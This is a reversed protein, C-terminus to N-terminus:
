NGHEALRAFCRSVTARCRRRLLSDQGAGNENQGEGAGGSAGCGLVEAMAGVFDEEAFERRARAGLRYVTKEEELYGGKTMEALFPRAQTEAIGFEALADLLYLERAHNEYVVILCLVLMSMGRQAGRVRVLGALLENSGAELVSVVVYENGIRELLWGFILRLQASAEDVYEQLPRQGGTNKLVERFHERRIRQQRGERAMVMRVMECTTDAPDAPGHGVAPDQDM